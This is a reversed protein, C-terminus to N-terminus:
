IRDNHNHGLTENWRPRSKIWKVASLGVRMGVADDRAAVQVRSMLDWAAYKADRHRAQHLVQPPGLLRGVTSYEVIWGDSAQSLKVEAGGSRWIFADEATHVYDGAGVATGSGEGAARQQVSREDPM